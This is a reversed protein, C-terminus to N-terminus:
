RKKVNTFVRKIGDWRGSKFCAHKNDLCYGRCFQLPAEKVCARRCQKSIQTCTFQSGDQPAPQANASSAAILVAGAAFSLATVGTARMARAPM